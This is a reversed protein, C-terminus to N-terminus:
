RVSLICRNHPVEGQFFALRGPLCCVITGNSADSVAPLAEGILLVRQDLLSNTSILYCKDPAGLARLAAEIEVPGGHPPTALVYSPEFDDFHYLGSIFKQRRRPTNLFGRYRERKGQILLGAIWDVESRQGEAPSAKEIPAM